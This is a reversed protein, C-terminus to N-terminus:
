IERVIGLGCKGIEKGLIGVLNKRGWLKTSIEEASGKNGLEEKDNTDRDLYWIRLSVKGSHGLIKVGTGLDTEVVNGQKIEGAANIM